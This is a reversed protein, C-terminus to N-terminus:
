AHAARPPGYREDLIARLSDPHNRRTSKTMGSFPNTSHCIECGGNRRAGNPGLLCPPRHEPQDGHQRHTDAHTQSKNVALKAFSLKRRSDRLLQDLGGLLMTCITVM